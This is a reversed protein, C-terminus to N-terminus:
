KSSLLVSKTSEEWGVGVGLKEAILRLPVYATDEVIFVEYALQESMGNVKAKDSGNDLEIVNKDGTVTIHGNNWKVDAGLNESVARVPVFTASNINYVTKDKAIRVGDLYIKMNFFMDHLISEADMDRYGDTDTLVSEKWSMQDYSKLYDTDRSCVPFKAFCENYFTRMYFEALNIAQSYKGGDPTYTGCLSVNPPSAHIFVMSGDPCEGVVMFAHGSSCMIDGCRRKKVSNKSILECGFLDAYKAAMEKALFVYGTDSYYNGFMQYMCWGMFGTCDLGSHIMYRTNKYDYDAGNANYFDVWTDSIGYSVAEEGAGDDAENWGGGYVYLCKGIPSFASYMLESVSAASANTYIVCLILTSLVTRKVSRKM